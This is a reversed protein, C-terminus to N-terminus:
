DELLGKLKDRQEQQTREKLQEQDKVIGRLLEVLENYEELELMRDLVAKMADEASQAAAKAAALPEAAEAPGAQYAQELSELRTEFEPLLEGSIEKLPESIGRELREKLEETDVRNNILEAVIEDFGGAIGATEFALQTASQRAGGVRSLDRQRVRAPDDGDRESENEASAESADSASPAAAAEAAGATDDAGSGAAALDIRDLLERVGVMKEYIAQFRQRLGLERKELIARLESPTVVDLVFRQSGGIHPEDGLDYADRGKISLSLKQGPQVAVLPQKTAPDSEALDFSETMALNTAGDPQTRLPRRSSPADDIAYDFWAEELGYDDTVSGALPIRAQPTIAAGIGRLQVSAEPTQDPTVSLPLRFPDRNEVGDADRLSIAFVRDRAAAPIEFSFTDRSQADITAPLDSQEVSDRVTAATLPKNAEIRCVAAAGEPLEARGSVPISRPERRMYAPYDVELWVRTIAPREVAHLRLNRIRDDGGIVDFELDSSVKFTYSYQQADDRGPAAEGIKLMPGSGRGGDSPRRWRIEVEDPAVHGNTVSALVSLPFDDDRAVNIVPSTERNEFGVVTLQVRRPWLQESLGLRELYFDFAGRQAIAFVATVALLGIAAIGKRALPRMDFVRRLAVEPMAAAANRSAATLLERSAGDHPTERSGGFLSGPAQNAPREGEWDSWSRAAQVTTVLGERLQPYQREVLLALSDDPLPALLRRGIYRWAVFAGTAVVVGWMAARLAPRPEFLWDIALGLWFGLGAVIALAAVGEALSYLRVLRRLRAVKQAVPHPVEFPLAAASM